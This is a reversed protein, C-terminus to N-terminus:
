ERNVSLENDWLTVPFQLFGMGFVDYAYPPQSGTMRCLIAVKDVIFLNTRVVLSHSCSLWLFRRPLHIFLHPSSRVNSLFIDLSISCANAMVSFGLHIEYFSFRLGFNLLFLFFIVFGFGVWGVCDINSQRSSQEWLENLWKWSTSVSRCKHMHTYAISVFDQRVWESVPLKKVRENVNKASTICFETTNPPPCM